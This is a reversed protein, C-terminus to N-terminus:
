LMKCHNNNFTPTTTGNNTEARMAQMEEWLKKQLQSVRSDIMEELSRDPHPLGRKKQTEELRDLKDSLLGYRELM